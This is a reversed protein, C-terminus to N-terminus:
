FHNISFSGTHFSVCCCCLGASKLWVIWRFNQHWWFWLCVSRRCWCYVIFVSAYNHADPFSVFLLLVVFRRRFILLLKPKRCCLFVVYCATIGRGAGSSTNTHTNNGSSNHTHSMEDVSFSVEEQKRQHLLAIVCIKIKNYFVFM